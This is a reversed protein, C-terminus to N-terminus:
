GRAGRRGPGSRLRAWRGVRHPPWIEYKTKYTIM